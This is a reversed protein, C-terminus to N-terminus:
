HKSIPVAIYTKTLSLADSEVYGGNDGSGGGSGGGKSGGGGSGGGSVLGKRNKERDAFVARILVETNSKNSVVACYEYVHANKGRLYYARISIHDKRWHVTPQRCSMGLCFYVGNRIHSSM